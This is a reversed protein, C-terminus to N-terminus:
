EETDMDDSIDLELDASPINLLSRPILDFIDVLALAYQVDNSRQGTGVAPQDIVWLQTAGETTDEDNDDLDMEEWSEESGAEEPGPAASDRSGQSAVIHSVLPVSDESAKTQSVQSAVDGNLHHWSPIGDEDGANVSHFGTSVQVEMEQVSSSEDRSM